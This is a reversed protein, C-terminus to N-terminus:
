PNVVCIVQIERAGKDGNVVVSAVEAPTDTENCIYFLLGVKGLATPRFPFPSSQSLHALRAERTKQPAANTSNQAFRM